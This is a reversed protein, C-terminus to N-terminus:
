DFFKWVFGWQLTFDQGPYHPLSFYQPTSEWLANIHLLKLFITAHKIQLSAFIDSWIYNGIEVDNQRYFAALSPNYADAYFATNYRLDVGTQVSLANKFMKFDFFYSHKCAFTPVRFVDNDSAFQLLNFTRWHFPGIKINTNLCAQSLWGREDTQYPRSNTDLWVMNDVVAVSTTLDIYNNWKYQLKLNQTHIKNYEGRNDWEHYNSFFYNYFYDPARDSSHGSLTISHDNAFLYSVDARVMNNNQMFVADSFSKEAFLEARLGGVSINLKVFPLIETLNYSKPLESVSMHDYSYIGEVWLHRLGLSLKVPNFYEYDKYVDNSWYITNELRFTSVSDFTNTSDVYCIPHYIHSFNPEYYNRKDTEVLIQHVVTGRNFPTGKRITTDCSITYSSDTTSFVTDVVINAGIRKAFNYSQHAVATFSNYRTSADYMYVPIGSRNTQINETFLSDSTIGGNEQINLKKWIVGGKVQYRLNESYYNTTAGLYNNLTKQNSYAGESNILDYHLAINWRQSLNQTHIVRVQYDSLLSNSFALLTYPRETQYFTLNDLSYGYGDYVSQKYRFAIGEDNKPYLSLHPSGVNGTNLYYNNNFTFLPDTQEIYDPLLTPHFAYYIKADLPKLYFYYVSNLLTSDPIVEYDFIIGKPLTDNESNNDPTQFPNNTNNNNNINGYRDRGASSPLVTSPMFQANASVWGLLVIISIIYKIYKM